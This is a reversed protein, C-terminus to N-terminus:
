LFDNPDPRAIMCKTEREGDKLKSATTSSEKIRFTDKVRIRGWMTLNKGV